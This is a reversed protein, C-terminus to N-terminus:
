AEKETCRYNYYSSVISFRFKSNRRRSLPKAKRKKSRAHSLWQSDFDRDQCHNHLFAISFRFKSNGRMTFLTRRM